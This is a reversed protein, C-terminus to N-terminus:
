ATKFPREPRQAMPIKNCLLRLRKKLGRLNRLMKIKPIPTLISGECSVTPQRLMKLKKALDEFPEDWSFDDLDNLGGNYLKNLHPGFRCM